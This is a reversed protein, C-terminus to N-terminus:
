ETQDNGYGPNDRPPQATFTPPHGTCTPAFRQRLRLRRCRDVARHRRVWEVPLVHVPLGIHRCAGCRRRGNLVFSFAAGAHHPAHRAGGLDVGRLRPRRLTSRNAASFRRDLMLSGQVTFVLSSREALVAPALGVFRNGVIREVLRGALRERRERDVDVRGAIGVDAAEEGLVHQRGLVGDADLLHEVVEGIVVRRRRFRALMREGNVDLDGAAGPVGLVPQGPDADGGPRDVLRPPRGAVEDEQDVDGARHLSGLLSGSTWHLRCRSTSCSPSFSWTAM